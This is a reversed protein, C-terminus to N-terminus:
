IEVDIFDWIVKKRKDISVNYMHKQIWKMDVNHFIYEKLEKMPGIERHFGLGTNPLPKFTYVTRTKIHELKEAVGVIIQNVYMFQCFVGDAERRHGYDGVNRKTLEGGLWKSNKLEVALSTEIEKLNKIGNKWKLGSKKVPCFTYSGDKSKRVTGVRVFDVLSVYKGKGEDVCHHKVVTM